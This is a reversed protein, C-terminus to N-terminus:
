LGWSSMYNALFHERHKKTIVVSHLFIKRSKNNRIRVDISIPQTIEKGTLTVDLVEYVVGHIKATYKNNRFIIPLEPFIRMTIIIDKKGILPKCTCEIASLLVGKELPKQNEWYYLM